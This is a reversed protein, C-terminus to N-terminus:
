KNPTRARAYSKTQVNSEAVETPGQIDCITDGRVRQARVAVTLCATEVQSLFLGVCMSVNWLFCNVISRSRMCEPERTHEALCEELALPWESARLVHPLLRGPSQASLLPAGGPLMVGFLLPCSLCVDHKVRKEEHRQQQLEEEEGSGAEEKQGGGGAM